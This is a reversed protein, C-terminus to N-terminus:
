RRDQPPKKEPPAAAPSGAPPGGAGAFQKIRELQAPDVVNLTRPVFAGDKTEGRVTVADGAHIDALTISERRKLLSTNEDAEITQTVNDLRLITIKTGDIAKVTGAVFDKGMQPPPGGGGPREGGGPGGSRVSISEADWTSDANKTGRVFVSAGVKFDQLKATQQEIRFVTKSSLHVTVTSGDPASLKMETPSISEIRGMAGNARFRGRQQGEGGPPGQEQGGPASQGRASLLGCPLMMLLLAVIRPLSRSVM